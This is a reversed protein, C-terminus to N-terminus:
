QLRKKDSIYKIDEFCLRADSSLKVEVQLLSLQGMSLKPQTCSPSCTTCSPSHTMFSLGRTMCSPRCTTCSPGHTICCTVFIPFGAACSQEEMTLFRSCFGNEKVSKGVPAPRLVRGQWFLTFLPKKILDTRHEANTGLRKNLATHHITGRPM